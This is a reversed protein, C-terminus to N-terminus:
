SRARRWSFSGGARWSADLQWAGFGDLDRVRLALWSWLSLFAVAYILTRLAAFLRTV